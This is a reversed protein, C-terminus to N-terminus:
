HSKGNYVLWKPYGGNHFGGDTAGFYRKRMEPPSPLPPGIHWRFPPPSLVMTWQLATFCTSLACITFSGGSLYTSDYNRHMTHMASIDITPCVLTDNPPQNRISPFFVNVFSSLHHCIAIPGIGCTEWYPVNNTPKDIANNWGKPSVQPGYQHSWHCTQFRIFCWLPLTPFSQNTLVQFSPQSYQSFIVKSHFAAALKCVEYNM